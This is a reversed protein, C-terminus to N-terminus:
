LGQNGQTKLGIRVPKLSELARDLLVGVYGQLM